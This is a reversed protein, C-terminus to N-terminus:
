TREERAVFGFGVVRGANARYVGPWSNLADEVLGVPNNTAQAIAQSIVPQGESPLRYSAIAIRQEPADLSPMASRIANAMEVITAGERGKREQRTEM